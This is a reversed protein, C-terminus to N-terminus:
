ESEGELNGETADEQDPSERLAQLRRATNELANIGVNATQRYRVLLANGTEVERTLAAVQMGQHGTVDELEQIRNLLSPVSAALEYLRHQNEATGLERAIEHEIKEFDQIIRTIISVRRIRAIWEGNTTPM